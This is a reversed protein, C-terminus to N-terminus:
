TWFDATSMGFSRRTPILFPVRKRYAAYDCFTKPFTVLDQFIVYCLNLFSYVMGHALLPSPLAAAGLFVYVGLFCLVGPHRCLAYVGRDCVQPSQPQACYTGSFPLAFFLSYILAGLWPKNRCLYFILTLIIGTNAYDANLLNIALVGVVFWWWKRSKVGYIALLSFFLTIFINWNTLNGWFDHPHFALAYFPQSIVAFIALRGLYRKIDHTCMLGVTLCYCFIPFALRGVWRFVPYGPFFVTGVHDVVMCLIAILKLFNTDLNTKLRPAQAQAQTQTEADM